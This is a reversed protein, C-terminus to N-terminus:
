FEAKILGIHLKEGRSNVDKLSFIGNYAVQSFYIIEYALMM